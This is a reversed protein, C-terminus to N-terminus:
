IAVFVAALHRMSGIDINCGERARIREGAIRVVM